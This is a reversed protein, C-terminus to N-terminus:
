DPPEARRPRGPPRRGGAAPPSSPPLASRISHGNSVAPASALAPRHLQILQLAEDGDELLAAELAGRRPEPDGLGREGVLDLVELLLEADLHEVAPRAADRGRLRAAHEEVVRVAHDRGDALGVLRHALVIFHM